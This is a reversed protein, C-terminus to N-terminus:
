DTAIVCDFSEAPRFGEITSVAFSCDLKGLGAVNQRAVEIYEQAPDIGIVRHGVSALLFSLEGSGCGGNLIKLNSHNSLHGLIINYKTNAYLDQSRILLDDYQYKNFTEM